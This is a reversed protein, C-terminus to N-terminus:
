KTGRGVLGDLKTEFRSMVATCQEYAGLTREERKETTELWKSRDERHERHVQQIYRFMGLMGIILVIVLIGLAGYDTLANLSFSTAQEPTM